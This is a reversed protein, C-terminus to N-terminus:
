HDLNISTWRGNQCQFLAMRNVDKGVIVRTTITNNPAGPLGMSPACHAGVSSQLRSVTQSLTNLQQALAANKAQLQENAASLTQLGNSLGQVATGLSQIHGQLVQTNSHLTQLNSALGQVTRELSSLRSELSQNRGELAQNQVQLDQITQIQGIVMNQTNAVATQTNTLNTKTVDLEGAVANVGDSLCNVQGNPLFTVNTAYSVFTAKKPTPSDPTTPPVYRASAPSNKITTNDADIDFRVLYKNPAVLFPTARVQNLRLSQGLKKPFPGAVVKSGNSTVVEAAVSNLNQFGQPRFTSMTRLSAHCSANDELAVRARQALANWATADSAQSSAKLSSTMLNSIAAGVIALIAMAMMAEVLGFGDERHTGM